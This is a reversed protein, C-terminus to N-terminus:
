ALLPRRTTVSSTSCTPSATLTRTSRSSGTGSRRATTRTSTGAVLGPATTLHDVILYSGPIMNALEATLDAWTSTHSPTENPSSATCRRRAVLTRSNRGATATTFGRSAPSRRSSCTTRSALRPRRIPQTSVTVTPSVSRCGVPTEPGDNTYIWHLKDTVNIFEDNLEGQPLDHVLEIATGLPQAGGQSRTITGTATWTTAGGGTATVATVDFNVWNNAGISKLRM